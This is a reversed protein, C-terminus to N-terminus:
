AAMKKFDELTKCKQAANIYAMVWAVPIDMKMAHMTQLTVDGSVGFARAVTEGQPTVIEIKVTESAYQIKANLLNKM